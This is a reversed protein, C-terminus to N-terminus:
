LAREQRLKGPLNARLMFVTTENKSEITQMISWKVINTLSFLSLLFDIQKYYNTYKCSHLYTNARNCFVAIRRPKEDKCSKTISLERFHWKKAIDMIKGSIEHRELPM